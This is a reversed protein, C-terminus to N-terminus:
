RRDAFEACCTAIPWIRAASVPRGTTCAAIEPMEARMSAVTTHVASVSSNSRVRGPLRLRGRRRPSVSYTRKPSQTTPADSSAIPRSRRREDRGAGATTRLSPSGLGLPRGAPPTPGRGSNRRVVERRARAHGFRMVFGTSRATSTNTRAGSPAPEDHELCGASISDHMPPPCASTRVPLRLHRLLHRVDRPM